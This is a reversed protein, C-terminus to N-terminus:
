VCWCAFVCCIGHCLLADVVLASVVCVCVLVCVMVCVCCMGSSYIVHWVGCVSGVVVCVLWCM